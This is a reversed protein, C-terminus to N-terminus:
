AGERRDVVLRLDIAAPPGPFSLDIRRPSGDDARLFRITWGDQRFGDGDLTTADAGTAPRGDLWTRMGRLPVTWGLAQRTLAEPSDGEVRRGDRFAITSLNPSSRILAVSQGLPDLLALEVDDGRESWQFSGSLAEEKGSALDHYRVSIRGEISRGGTLERQLSPSTTACSAVLLCGLALAIFRRPRSSSPRRPFRM